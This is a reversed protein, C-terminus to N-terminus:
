VSEIFAKGFDKTQLVVKNSKNKEDVYVLVIKNTNWLLDWNENKNAKGGYLGGHLQINIASKGPINVVSIDDYHVVPRSYVRTSDDLPIDEFLVKKKDLFELHVQRMIKIDRSSNYLDLSLEYHYYETEEISNSEVFGGLSDQKQFRDKWEM